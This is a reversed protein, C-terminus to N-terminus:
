IGKKKNERIITKSVKIDDRSLIYKYAKNIQAIYMNDSNLLKSKICKNLTEDRTPISSIEKHIQMVEDKFM